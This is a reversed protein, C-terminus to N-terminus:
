HSYSWRFRESINIM